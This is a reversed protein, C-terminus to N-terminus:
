GKRPARSMLADLAWSPLNAIVRVLVSMQWPFVILPKQQALGRRVIDAAKEASMIFPMKFDNADTMRSTVFGPCVVSVAIGDDALQPRMAEGWAKVAAKSASYAPATALGRFGAISSIIAIQGARRARMAPIIPLATNLVGALNVAFIERVQADSEGDGGTGGSIGANAIVLDIPTDMELRDIWSGMASMDTVDITEATVKAGRSRCQAAIEALRESNRGSLALFTGTEAYALALAAGIGSSAGTILISKPPIRNRAM